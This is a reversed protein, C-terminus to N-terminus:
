VIVKNKEKIKAVLLNYKVESIYSNNLDLLYM